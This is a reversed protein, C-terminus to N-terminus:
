YYQIELQINPCGTSDRTGYNSDLPYSGDQFSNYSNFLNNSSVRCKPTTSGYLFTGDKNEWMIILNGNSPDFNYPTDLVIEFWDDYDEPITYTFNEKVTIKNNILFDVYPQQTFDNRINTKFELQNVQAIKLTQNNATEDDLSDGIIYFKIKNIVAPKDLIDNKNYIFATLGYNYYLYSPYKQNTTTGTGITKIEVTPTISINKMAEKFIQTDLNVSEMIYNTPNFSKSNSGSTALQLRSAQIIFDYSTNEAPLTSVDINPPPTTPLTSIDITPAIQPYLNVVEATEAAVYNNLETKQEDTLDNSYDNVSILTDANDYTYYNYNLIIDNTIGVNFESIDNDLYLRSNKLFLTVFQSENKKVKYSTDDANIIVDRVKIIDSNITTYDNEYDNMFLYADETRNVTIKEVLEEFLAVKDNNYNKVNYIKIEDDDKKTISIMFLDGNSFKEIVTYYYSM